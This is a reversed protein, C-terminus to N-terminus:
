RPSDNTWAPSVFVHTSIATNYPPTVNGHVDGMTRAGSQEPTNTAASKQKQSHFPARSGM